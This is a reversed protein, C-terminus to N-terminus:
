QQKWVKKREDTGRIQTPRRVVSVKFLPPVAFMFDADSNPLFKSVVMLNLRKLSRLVETLRMLRLKWFFFTHRSKLFALSVSWGSLTGQALIAVTVLRPGPSTLCTEHPLGLFLFAGGGCFLPSPASFFQCLFFRWRWLSHFCRKFWTVLFPLVFRLFAPFIEASRLVFVVRM